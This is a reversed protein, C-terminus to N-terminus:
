ANTVGFQSARGLPDHGVGLLGQGVGALWRRPLPLLQLVLAAAIALPAARYPWPMWWVVPLLLVIAVAADRRGPWRLPTRYLCLVGLAVAASWLLGDAPQYYGLGWLWSVSLLAVAIWARMM